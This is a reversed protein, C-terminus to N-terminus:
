KWQKPPGTKFGTIAVLQKELAAAATPASREGALVSHV